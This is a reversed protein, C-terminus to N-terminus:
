PGLTVAPDSMSHSSGAADLEDLLHALSTRAARETDWLAGRRHASVAQPSIELSRAAAVGSGLSELVDLVRWTAESREAVVAVLLHLLPEVREGAEGAELAVPVAIGRKKAREVAERARVFAEGSSEPASAALLGPGVGIGISWEGVRVLAMVADMAAAGDRPVGQLEDGVTREFPLHVPVPELLALAAPVRDPGTRSGIQDATIVLM